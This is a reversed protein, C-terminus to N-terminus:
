VSFSYEFCQMFGHTAALKKAQLFVERFNWWFGLCSQFSLINHILSLPFHDDKSKTTEKFINADVVRFQYESLLKRQAYKIWVAISMVVRPASLPPMPRGLIKKRIEKLHCTAIIKIAMVINLYYFTNTQIMLVKINVRM